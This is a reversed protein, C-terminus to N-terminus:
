GIAQSKRQQGGGGSFGQRPQSPLYILADSAKRRRLESLVLLGEGDGVRVVVCRRRVDHVRKLIATSCNANVVFVLVSWQELVSGM